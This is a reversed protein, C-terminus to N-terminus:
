SGIRHGCDTGIQGRGAVHEDLDRAIRRDRQVPLDLRRDAVADAGPSQQAAGRQRGRAPQRRLEPDRAAHHDLGVLLEDGLAVQRATGAAVRADGDAGLCRGARRRSRRGLRGLDVEARAAGVARHERAGRPQARHLARQRVRVEAVAAAAADRRQVLREGRVEVAHAARRRPRAVDHDAVAVRLPDRQDHLHEGGGARAPQRDLVRRGVVVGHGDGAGGAELDDAHRDALVAQAHLCQVAEV